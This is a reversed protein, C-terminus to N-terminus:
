KHRCIKILIPLAWLSIFNIWDINHSCFARHCVFVCWADDVLFVTAVTIFVMISLIAAWEIYM